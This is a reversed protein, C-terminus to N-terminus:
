DGMYPSVDPSTEMFPSQLRVVIETHVNCSLVSQRRDRCEPPTSIIQFM